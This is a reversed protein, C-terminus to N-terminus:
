GTYTPQAVVPTARSAAPRSPSLGADIPAVPVPPSAPVTSSAGPVMATTDPSTPTTTVPPAVAPSGCGEVVTGVPVVCIRHDGATDPLSVSLVGTAADFTSSWSTPSDTSTVIWGEPYSRSAPIFIETAGTAANDHYTVSLARTTFDYTSSTPAGAIARAYPEFIQGINPRDNGADDVPCYGSGNCYSFHSWGSAVEDMTALSQRVFEGFIPAEPVAVGWEGVLMPMPNEDVYGAIADAWKQFFEPDYTYTVNPDYTSFELSPDYMHPYFAVKPGDVRGLSTSVGLSAVNPPEIFVWHDPDVASIADTLRQYMPTLQTQEIRAITDYLTEGPLGPFIKGFPENMLDYGLVGPLDKVRNVVQMWADSQAQRLDADNYLHDFASQVAPQLHKILWSSDDDVFPPTGPDVRTAWSPAGTSGFAEGYLDQHMDLIVRVGHAASRNVATVINDLYAEDYNGQTPEILQWYITMRYHDLGRETVQDLIADTLTGSPDRTKANFGHLQLARGHQDAFYVRGDTGTVTSWDAVPGFDSQDVPPSTVAGASSVSVLLIASIAVVALSRARM